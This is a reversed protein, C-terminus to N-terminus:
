YKRLFRLMQEITEASEKRYPEFVCFAHTLKSDKQEFYLLEHEAQQRSLAKEFRLTYDKLNDNRSSILYVPPLSSVIEKHEPNVYPAYASKKYQKGYFYKPLFM